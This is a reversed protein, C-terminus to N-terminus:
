DADKRAFKGSNDSIRVQKSFYSEPVQLGLGDRLLTLLDQHDLVVTGPEGGKSLSQATHLYKRVQKWHLVSWWSRCLNKLGDRDATGNKPVLIHKAM